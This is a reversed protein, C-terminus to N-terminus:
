CWCLINLYQENNTLPLVNNITFHITRFIIYEGEDQELGTHIEKNQQFM